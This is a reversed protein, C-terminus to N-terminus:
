SGNRLSRRGSKFHARSEGVPFATIPTGPCGSGSTVRSPRWSPKLSFERSGAARGKAEYIAMLVARGRSEFAGKRRRVAFNISGGGNLVTLKSKKRKDPTGPGAAGVPGVVGVPWAASSSHRRLGM